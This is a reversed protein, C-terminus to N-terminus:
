SRIGLSGGITSVVSALTCASAASWRPGRAVRGGRHAPTQGRRVRGDRPRVQERVGGVVDHDGVRPRAVAFAPAEVHRAPALVRRALDPALEAVDAVHLAVQDPGGSILRDAPRGLTVLDDERRVLGGNAPAVGVDLRKQLDRDRGLLGDLNAPDRQGVVIGPRALQLDGTVGLDDQSRVPVVHGVRREALQEELRFPYGARAGQKAPAPRSRILFLRDTGHVDRGHVDRRRAAREHAGALVLGITSAEESAPARRRVRGCEVM